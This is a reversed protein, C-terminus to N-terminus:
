SCGCRHGCPAMLSPLQSTPPLRGGEQWTEGEKKGEETQRNEDRKGKRRWTTEEEEERLKKKGEGKRRIEQVRTLKLRGDTELMVPTQERRQMLYLYSRVEAPKGRVPLQLSLFLSLGLHESVKPLIKNQKLDNRLLLKEAFFIPKISNLTPGKPKLSILQLWVFLGNHAM